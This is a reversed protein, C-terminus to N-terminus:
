FLATDLKLNLETLMKIKKNRHSKQQMRERELIM